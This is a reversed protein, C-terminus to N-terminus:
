EKPIKNPVSPDFKNREAKKYYASDYRTAKVKSNYYGYKIKGESSYPASGKQVMWAIKNEKDPLDCQTYPQYNDLVFNYKMITEEMYDEMAAGCVVILDVGMTDFFGLIGIESILAACDNRMLRRLYHATPPNYRGMKASDSVIREVSTYGKNEKLWNVARRIFYM